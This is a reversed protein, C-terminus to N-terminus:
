NAPDTRVDHRCVPCRVSMSFWQAACPGHYMHGCQLIRTADTAIDDQCIACRTNAPPTHVTETARELHAATPTVAVPEMFNAPLNLTTLLATAAATSRVHQGHVRNLLELAMRDNLLYAAAITDRAPSEFRQVTRQFFTARTDYMRQVIHVIDDEM